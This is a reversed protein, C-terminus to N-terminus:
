IKGITKDKGKLTTKMKEISEIKKQIEEHLKDKEKFSIKDNNNNNEEIVRIRKRLQENSEKLDQELAKKEKLRTSLIVNQVVIDSSSEAEAALEKKAEEIQMKIHENEKTMKTLLNSKKSVEECLSRNKEELKKIEHDFRLSGDYSIKKLSDIEKKLETKGNTESMIEFKLKVQSNKLQKNQELLSKQECELVAIKTELKRNETMLNEASATLECNQGSLSKNQLLIDKSKKIEDSLETQSSQLLSKMDANEKKVFTIEKQLLETKSEYKIELEVLSKRIQLIENLKRSREEEFEKILSENERLLELQEKQLKAMDKQLKWLDEFRAFVKVNNDSAIDAIFNIM